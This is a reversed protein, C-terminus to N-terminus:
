WHPQNGTLKKTRIGTRGKRGPVHVPPQKWGRGDLTHVLGGGAGASRKGRGVAGRRRAGSQRRGSRGPVKKLWMGRCRGLGVLGM